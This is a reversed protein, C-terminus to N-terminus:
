SYVPQCVRAAEELVKKVRDKEVGVSTLLTQDSKIADCLVTGNQLLRNKEAKNLTTLSTVPHVGLNYILDYLNGQKPYDWSVLHLGKCEGYKIANDTFRTNTILWGEMTKGNFAEAMPGRMLDEVRAEVYLAVKLDSKIAPDNHFKAEVILVKKDNEALVDVEHEVCSGNVMTGVKTKFGRAKFINAIFDEFPFGSPGLEMVARKLSYRAAVPRERKRLLYFAHKYIQDTSMDDVLEMKIQRVIQEAVEEGAGAKLLSQRLKEARFLEREGGAKRIYVEDPM